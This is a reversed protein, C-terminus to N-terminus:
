RGKRKLTRSAHLTVNCPMTGKLENHIKWRKEEEYWMLVDYGLEELTRKDDTTSYPDCSYKTLELDDPIRVRIALEMDFEPKINNGAILRYGGIKDGGLVTGCLIYRYRKM